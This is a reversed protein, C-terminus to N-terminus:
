LEPIYSLQMVPSIDEPHYNWMFINQIQVSNLCGYRDFHLIRKTEPREPKSKNHDTM